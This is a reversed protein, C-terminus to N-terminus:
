VVIACWSLWSYLLVKIANTESQKYLRYLQKIIKVLIKYMLVRFADLHPLYLAVRGRKVSQRVICRALLGCGSGSGKYRSEYM